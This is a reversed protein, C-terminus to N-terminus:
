RVVLRTSLKSQFNEDLVINRLANFDVPFNPQGSNLVFQLLYSGDDKLVLEFEGNIINQKETETLQNM